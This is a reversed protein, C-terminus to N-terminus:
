RILVMPPPPFHDADVARVIEPDLEAYAKVRDSVVAPQGTAIAIEALMEALPRPGLRHVREILRDLRPGAAIEVPSPYGPELRGARLARHLRYFCEDRGPLYTEPANM